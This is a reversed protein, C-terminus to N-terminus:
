RGKNKLLDLYTNYIICTNYTRIVQREILHRPLGIKYTAKPPPVAALSSTEVVPDPHNEGISIM